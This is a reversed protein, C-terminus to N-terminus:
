TTSKLLPTYPFDESFNSDVRGQGLAKRLELIVQKTALQDAESQSAGNQMIVNDLATKLDNNEQQLIILQDQLVITTNQSSTQALPVFEEFVTNYINKIKSNNYYINNLPFAVYTQSFNSSSSNFIMNGVNDFEYQYKGYRQFNKIDQSFDAM